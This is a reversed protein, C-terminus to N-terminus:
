ISEWGLKEAYADLDAQAEERTPRVPLKPSKMRNGWDRGYRERYTFWPKGGIGCDVGFVDTGYRYRKGKKTDQTEIM